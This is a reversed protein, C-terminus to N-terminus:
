FLDDVYNTGYVLEFRNFGDLEHIVSLMMLGLYSFCFLMLPCVFQHNTSLDIITVSSCINDVGDLLM